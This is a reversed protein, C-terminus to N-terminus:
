RLRLVRQTRREGAADLKIFYFGDSVPHGQRNRGDWRIRQDGARLDGDVLTQVRRGMMDYVSLKARGPQPLQFLIDTGKSFVNPRPELLVLRFAPLEPDVGSSDLLLSDITDIIEWPDYEWSWHRVVGQQDIIIDQPFPAEPDPVRYASYVASGPDELGVFRMGYIDRFETLMSMSSAVEFIVVDSTDYRSYISADTAAAQLM